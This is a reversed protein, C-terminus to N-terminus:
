TNSLSFCNFVMPMGQNYIARNLKLFLWNLTLVKPLDGVMKSSYISNITSELLPFGFLILMYGIPSPFVQIKFPKAHFRGM